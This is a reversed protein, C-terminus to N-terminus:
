AGGGNAAKFKLASKKLGANKDNKQENANFYAFYATEGQMHHLKLGCVPM